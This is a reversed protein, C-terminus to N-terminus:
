NYSEVELEMMDKEGNSTAGGAKHVLYSLPGIEYLLRLKAPHKNSGLNCFFV